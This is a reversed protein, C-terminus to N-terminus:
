RHDAAADGSRTVRLDGPLAAGVRAECSAVDLGSRHHM